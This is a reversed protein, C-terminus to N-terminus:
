SVVRHGINNQFFGPTIEQGYREVEYDREGFSESYNRKKIPYKTNTNNNYLINKSLDDERFRVQHIMKRFRVKYSEKELIFTFSYGSSMSAVFSDIHINQQINLKSCIM